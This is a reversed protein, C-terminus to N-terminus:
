YFLVTYLHLLLLALVVPTVPLHLYLWWRLPLQLTYHADIELKTRYLRELEDLKKQEGEPLLARLYEFEKLRAQIGGTVDVLYIWRRRPSGLAPALVRDYLARIADGSTEAVAKARGAIEEVLEPIREYLVETSLGSALVRPLWKQLLRGVVGTAVMWLSAVWLWWTIRGEPVRFGSHMLLILLFLLSGYLHFALWPRASGANLRSSTKMARRRVGLAAAAVLLLAALTGYTLGWANGPRLESFALNATLAVLAAAIALVFVYLGRSRHRGGRLHLKGAAEPM